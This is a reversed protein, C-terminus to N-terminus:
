KYRLLLLPADSLFYHFAEIVGSRINGLLACFNVKETSVVPTQSHKSITQGDGSLPGTAYILHRCETDSFSLDM